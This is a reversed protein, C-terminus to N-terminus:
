LQPKKYTDMYQEFTVHTDAFQVMTMDHPTIDGAEMQERTYNRLGQIMNKVEPRAHKFAFEQPAPASYKLSHSGKPFEYPGGRVKSILRGEFGEDKNLLMMMYSWGWMAAIKLQDEEDSFLPLMRRGPMFENKGVWYTDYKFFDSFDNGIPISMSYDILKVNGYKDCMFNSSHNNMHLWGKEHMEQLIPFADTRSIKNSCPKLMEMVIYGKDDCVFYDYMKPMFHRSGQLAKMCDVEVDFNSVDDHVKLVLKPPLNPKLDMSAMRTDVVTYVSGYPGEAIKVGKQYVNQRILACAEFIGEPLKDYFPYENEDPDPDSGKHKSLGYSYLRYNYNGKKEYSKQRPVIANKYRSKHGLHISTGFDILVVDGTEFDDRYMINNCHSDFHVVGLRYLEGLAKEERESRAYWEDSTMTEWEPGPVLKEMVIVGNGQNDVFFDYLIPVHKSGQLELLIALEKFFADKFFADTMIAHQVEAYTKQKKIVFEQPVNPLRSEVLFTSGYIGKGIYGLTKYQDNTDRTTIYPEIGDPPLAGHNKVERIFEFASDMDVVEMKWANNVEGKQKAVKEAAADPFPLKRKMERISWLM